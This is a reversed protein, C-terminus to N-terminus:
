LLHLTFTCTGIILHDCQAINNEIVNHFKVSNIKLQINLCSENPIKIISNDKIFMLYMNKCNYVNNM